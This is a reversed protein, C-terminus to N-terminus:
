LCKRCYEPSAVSYDDSTFLRTNLSLYQLLDHINKSMSNVSPEGIVSIYALFNNSRTFLRLLHISGYIASMQVGSDTDKHHVLLEQYQIREFKYLLHSGIMANFLNKIGAILERVVPEDASGNTAVRQQSYDDLIKDVSVKAPLDFLMKQRTILDWDDVLCPKLQDPMKIRIELKATFSDDITHFRDMAKRKKKKKDASGNSDNDNTLCSDGTKTGNKAAGKAARRAASSENGSPQATDKGVPQAGAGAAAAAAAAASAEAKRKKSAQSAAAVSSKLEQQRRLNDENIAMIMTEDVWEDWSKNWGNYHVYYRNRTDIALRKLCKAEYILPGHFCLIREEVAYKFARDSATSTTSTTVAPTAVTSPTATTTTTTSTTTTATSPTAM